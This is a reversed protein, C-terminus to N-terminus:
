VNSYLLGLSNFNKLFSYRDGEKIKLENFVALLFVTVTAGVLLANSNIFDLIETM